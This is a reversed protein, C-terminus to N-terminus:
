RRRGDASVSTQKGRLPHSRQIAQVAGNSLSWLFAGAGASCTTGCTGTLSTIRSHSSVFKSTEPCDTILHLIYFTTFGIRAMYVARNTCFTLNGSSSFECSTQDSQLEKVEWTLPQLEPIAVRDLTLSVGRVIEQRRKRGWTDPVSSMSRSIGPPVVDRILTADSDIVAVPQFSSLCSNLISARGCGIANYNSM